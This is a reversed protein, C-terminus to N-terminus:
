VRGSRNDDKSAEPKWYFDEVTLAGLQQVSPRAGAAAGADAPTIQYGTDAFEEEQMLLLDVHTVSM